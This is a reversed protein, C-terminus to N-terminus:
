YSIRFCLIRRANYSDGTIYIWAHESGNQISGHHQTLCFANPDFGPANFVVMSNAGGPVTLLTDLVVQLTATKAPRIRLTDPAAITKFLDSFSVRDGSSRLFRGSDGAVTSIKANTVAMDAIMGTRVGGAKIGVKYPSEATGSGSRTLGGNLITDSIENGVIADGEVFSGDSVKVWKNTDWYYVGISLSGSANYVLMGNVTPSGTLPTNLATLSVRPLALGKTGTVTNDANLDLVAAPNPVGNGGIRVQSNVNAAGLILLFLMLFLMKKMKERM